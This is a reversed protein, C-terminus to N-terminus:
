NPTGNQIWANIKAIDCDPLKGGGKPMRESLDTTTLRNLLEGSRAMARLSTYSDLNIGFSGSATGAHCSYCNAQIIPAINKTYTMGATDCTPQQAYILEAKDYYCGTISLSIIGTVITYLFIRKM